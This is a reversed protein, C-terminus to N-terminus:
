LGKAAALQHFSIIPLFGPAGEHRLHLPQDRVGAAVLQRALDHVAGHLGPAEYAIGAVTARAADDTVDVSITM